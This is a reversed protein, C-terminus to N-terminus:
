NEQLTSTEATKVTICHLLKNRTFFKNRDIKKYFFSNKEKWFYATIHANDPWHAGPEGSASFQPVKQAPIEEEVM